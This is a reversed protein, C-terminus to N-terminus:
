KEDVVEGEIPGDKKDAKKTDAEAAVDEAPKEDKAAEYMKAGIPMVKDNLAKTAAEIKEKDSDETIQKADTIAEELSKKDEDSIKDGYDSKM